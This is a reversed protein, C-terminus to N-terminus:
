RSLVADAVLLDTVDDLVAPHYKVLGRRRFRRALIAEHEKAVIFTTNGELDHCDRVPSTVQADDV